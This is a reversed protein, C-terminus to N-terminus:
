PFSVRLFVWLASRDFKVADAVAFWHFSRAFADNLSPHNDHNWYTVNEFKASAEWAIFNGESSGGKKKLIYGAFFYM